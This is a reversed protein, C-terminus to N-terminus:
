CNREQLNSPKHARAALAYPVQAISRKYTRVHTSAVPVNNHALANQVKTKRTRVHVFDFGVQQRSGTQWNTPKCPRECKPRIIKSPAASNAKRKRIGFSTFARDALLHNSM